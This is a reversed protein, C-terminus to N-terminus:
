RTYFYRGKFSLTSSYTLGLEEVGTKWINLIADPLAGNDRKLYTYTYSTDSLDNNLRRTFIEEGNRPNDKDGRTACDGKGLTNSAEGITDTTHTGVPSTTGRPLPTYRPSISIIDKIYGEADYIIRMGAKPIIETKQVPINAVEIKANEFIEKEKYYFELEEETMSELVLPSYPM